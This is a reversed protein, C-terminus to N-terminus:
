SSSRAPHDPRSVGLRVLGVGPDRRPPAAPAPGGLRGAARRGRRLGPTARRAAPLPRGRALAPRQRTTAGVRRRDRRRMRIPPTASSATSRTAPTTQSSRGRADGGTSLVTTSWVSTGPPTLSGSVAIRMGLSAIATVLLKESNSPLRGSPTRRRDRCDRHAEVALSARSRWRRRRPPPSPRDDARAQRAPEGAPGDPDRMSAREARSFPAEVRHAEGVLAADRDAVPLRRVEGGFEGVSPRTQRTGASRVLGM